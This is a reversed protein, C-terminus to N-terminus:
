LSLPSSNQIKVLFKNEKNKFNTFALSLALMINVVTKLFLIKWITGLIM